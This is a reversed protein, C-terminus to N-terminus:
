KNLTAMVQDTIMKVLADADLMSDAGGQYAPKQLYGPYSPAKEFASQM